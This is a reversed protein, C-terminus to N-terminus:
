YSESAMTKMDQGKFNHSRSSEVSIEHDYYHAVSLSIGATFSSTVSRTYMVAHDPLKNTQGDEYMYKQFDDLMPQGDVIADRIRDRFENQYGVINNETFWSNERSQMPICANARYHRDWQMM